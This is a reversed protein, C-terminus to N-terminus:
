QRSSQACGLDDRAIELLAEEQEAVKPAGPQALSQVAVRRPFALQVLECGVDEHIQVVMRRHCTQRWMAEVLPELCRLQNGVPVAWRNARLDVRGVIFLGPALRQRRDSIVTQTRDRYEAVIMGLVDHEDFSAITHSMESQEIELIGERPM